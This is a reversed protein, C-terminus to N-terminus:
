GSGAYHIDWSGSIILRIYQLCEPNRRPGILHEVKGEINVDSASNAAPQRLHMCAPMYQMKDVLGEVVQRSISLQRATKM